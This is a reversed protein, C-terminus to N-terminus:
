GRMRRATGLLYLLDVALFAATIATTQASDYLPNVEVLDAAVVNLGELAKLLHRMEGSTPGGPVPTGTGPAFASDLADIDLTLYVPLTGVHAKIMAALAEPTRQLADNAYIIRHTDGELPPLHTRIYVQVSHAADIHGERVLDSAFTGHNISRFGPAIQDSGVSDQHADFHVLALRGFHRAAARVPGYPITHDGGLILPSAGAAFIQEAAAETLELMMEVAGSGPVAVVDGFDILNFRQTLVYDWPYVPQFEAAYNSQERIARPGYRTGSRNTTGSDFPIGMVALDVGELDRTYPRRMFTPLGAFPFSGELLRLVDADQPIQESSFMITQM